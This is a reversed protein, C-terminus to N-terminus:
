RFPTGDSAPFDEYRRMEEDLKTWATGAKEATGIGLHADIAAEKLRNALYKIDVSTLTGYIALVSDEIEAAAALYDRSPLSKEAPPAISAMLAAIHEKLRTVAYDVTDAQNARWEEPTITHIFLPSDDTLPLARAEPLRQRLASALLPPSAEALLLGFPALGLLLPELFAAPIRDARELLIVDFTRQPLLADEWDTHWVAAKETLGPPVATDTLCYLRNKKHFEAIRDALREALSANPMGSVYLIRYPRYKHLLARVTLLLMIQRTLGAGELATVDGHLRAMFSHAVDGFGNEDLMGLLGVASHNAFLDGTDWLDYRGGEPLSLAWCSGDIFLRSM